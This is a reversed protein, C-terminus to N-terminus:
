EDFEYLRRLIREALSLDKNTDLESGRPIAGRKAHDMVVTAVNAGAIALIENLLDKDTVQDLIASGPNEILEKYLQQARDDEEETSLENVRDVLAEYVGHNEQALSAFTFSNATPKRLDIALETLNGQKEDLAARLAEIDDIDDLIKKAEDPDGNAQEVLGQFSFSVEKQEPSGVMEKPTFNRHESM